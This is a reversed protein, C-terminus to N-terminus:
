PSQAMMYQSFYKLFLPSVYAEIFCGLIIFLYISAIITSYLLFQSFVNNYRNTKKFKNKILMVSFSIAIVGVIITGPIILVNQPLISIISFILGRIGMEKLLFGVTFGIIFGRFTIVLLILPIGVVTVGLIWLIVGTQLNNILSRKLLALRDITNFDYVKLFNELYNILERNEGQTLSKTTFVGSSVGIMFFLIVFFYTALNGQVHKLLIFNIKRILFVGREM